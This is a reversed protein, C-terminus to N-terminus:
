RHILLSAPLSYEILTVSVSQRQCICVKQSLCLCDTVSVSDAIFVHHRNCVFITQSLCVPQSLSLRNTVSVSLSQRLYVSVTQSLCLNGKDSISQQCVCVTQSPYEPKCLCMSDRFSLSQRHCFSGDGCVLVIAQLCSQRHFISVTQSLCLSDTFFANLIKFFGVKMFFFFLYVIKKQRFHVYLNNM